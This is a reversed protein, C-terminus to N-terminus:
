EVKVEFCFAEEALIGGCDPADYIEGLRVAYDGYTAIRNQWGLTDPGRNAGEVQVIVELYGAWVCHALCPCFNDNVEIVRLELGDPLTVIDNLHYGEVCNEVNEMENGGTKKECSTILLLFPAVLYRLHKM